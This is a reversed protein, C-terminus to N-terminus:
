LALDLWVRDLLRIGDVFLEAPYGAAPTFADREIRLMRFGLRQYFRLLHTDAAGTALVVRTAGRARAHALGAEVLGRGIGQGRRAEVVAISKLECTAPVEADLIQVHGVIEGSEIAVLVSGRDLYSAIEQDSDDALRFLTRLATRDEAYLAITSPAMVRSGSM